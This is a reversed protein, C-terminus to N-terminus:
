GNWLLWFYWPLVLYAVKIISWQLEVYFLALGKRKRAKTTYMIHKKEVDDPEHPPGYFGAQSVLYGEAPPPLAYGGNVNPLGYGGNSNPSSNGKARSNLTRTASSGDDSSSCSSKEISSERVTPLLPSESGAFSSKSPNMALHGARLFLLSLTLSLLLAYRIFIALQDPLLCLHAQLTTGDGTGQTKLPVGDSDVPNWLSLMEFGPKRVGMAWSLSKVTIERIGGGGSPYRRHVVECYDHDDGSFAYQINGIRTAIDKTIDHALVNQYQYGASVSIANPGDRELPKGDPGLTPPHRERFPGCPTEPDRYLPVHSLLITPLQAKSVDRFAPLSAAVLGETEVERHQFRPRSDVGHILRLEEAIARNRLEQIGNLFDETPKWIQYDGGDPQDKASLSVGDISVFSHNGIIDVRNGEGFYAEFREKVSRQVGAAFGLDHNGPLSAILRRRKTQGDRPAVGTQTFIDFFIKGFREYEKLWFKEGYTKWSKDPNAWHADVSWERGGDFLDGLFITSDPYLREQM